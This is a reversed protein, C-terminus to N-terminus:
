YTIIESDKPSSISYYTYKSAGEYWKYNARKFRLDSLMSYITTQFDEINRNAAFVSGTFTISTGYKSVEINESWLKDGVLRAYESRIRPFEKIQLKKLEKRMQKGLSRVTNNDHDKAREILKGWTSFLAVEVVLSTIAGRYESGKFEKIGKLETQYQKIDEEIQQQEEVIRISDLERQRQVEIISDRIIWQRKTSDIKNLLQNAKNYDKHNEQILNLKLVTAHLIDESNTEIAEIYLEEAEKYHNACSTIFLIITLIYLTKKM